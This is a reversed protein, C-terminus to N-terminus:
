QKLLQTFKTVEHILTSRNNYMDIYKIRNESDDYVITLM